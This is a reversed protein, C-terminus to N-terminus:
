TLATKRGKLGIALLRTQRTSKDTFDNTNKPNNQAALYIQNSKSKVLALRRTDRLANVGVSRQSPIPYSTRQSAIGHKNVYM